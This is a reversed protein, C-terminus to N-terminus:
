CVMGPCSLIKWTSACPTATSTGLKRVIARMTFGQRHYSHIDMVAERTIM